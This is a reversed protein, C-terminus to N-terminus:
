YIFAAYLQRPTGSFPIGFIYEEFLVSDIYHYGVFFTIRSASLVSTATVLSTLSAFASFTSRLGCLIVTAMSSITINRYNSAAYIHRFHVGRLALPSVIPHHELLHPWRLHLPSVPILIIFVHEKFRLHPHSSRLPLSRMTEDTFRM